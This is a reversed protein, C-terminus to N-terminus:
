SHLCFSMLPKTTSPPLTLKSLSCPKTPIFCRCYLGLAFREVYNTSITPAALIDHLPATVLVAIPSTAAQAPSGGPQPQCHSFQLMPVKAIKVSEACDTLFSFLRTASNLGDSFYRKQYGCVGNRRICPTEVVRRDIPSLRVSLGYFYGAVCSTPAPYGGSIYKLLAFM